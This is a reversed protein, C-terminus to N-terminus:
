TILANISTEHDDPFLTAVNQAIKKSFSEKRLSGVVIGVKTM